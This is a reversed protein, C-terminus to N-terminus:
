ASQDTANLVSWWIALQIREDKAADLNAKWAIASIIVRVRQESISLQAAIQKTTLARAVLEAVEREKPTLEIM